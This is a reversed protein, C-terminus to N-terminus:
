VAVQGCTSTCFPETVGVPFATEPCSLNEALMPGAVVIYNV